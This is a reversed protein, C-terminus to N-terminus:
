IMVTGGDGGQVLGVWSCLSLKYPPLYVTRVNDMKGDTINQKRLLNDYIMM